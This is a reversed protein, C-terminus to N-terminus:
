SLMQCLAHVEKTIADEELGLEQLRIYIKGIVPAISQRYDVPAPLSNNILMRIYQSYSLNLHNSNISLINYEEENLRLSITNNKKM